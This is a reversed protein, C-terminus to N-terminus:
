QLAQFLASRFPSSYQAYNACGNACVNACPVAGSSAYDLFFVWRPSSAVNAGGNISKIQCYCYPGAQNTALQVGSPTQVVPSSYSGSGLNPGCGGYVEFETVSSNGSCGYVRNFNVSYTSSTYSSCMDPTTAPAIECLLAANANVIAMAATCFILFKGIM